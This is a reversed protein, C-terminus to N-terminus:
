LNSGPNLFHCERQAKSTVKGGFGYISKSEMQETNEAKRKKDADQNNKMTQFVEKPSVDEAKSLFPLLMIDPGM